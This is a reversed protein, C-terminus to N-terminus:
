FCPVTPNADSKSLVTTQKHNSSHALVRVLENLFQNHIALALRSTTLPVGITPSAIFSDQTPLNVVVDALCYRLAILAGVSDQPLLSSAPMSPLVLKAFHPLLRFHNYSQHEAVEVPDPLM